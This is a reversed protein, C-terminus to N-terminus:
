LVPKLGVVGLPTMFWAIGSVPIFCRTNGTGGAVTEELREGAERAAAGSFASARPWEGRGAGSGVV